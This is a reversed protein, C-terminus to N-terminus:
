CIRLYQKVLDWHPGTEFKMLFKAGDYNTVSVYLSEEMDAVILGEVWITQNNLSGWGLVSLPENDDIKVLLAIRDMEVNAAVFEGTFFAEIEFGWSPMPCSFKAVSRRDPSFWAVALGAPDDFDDRIEFIEFSGIVDGPWSFPPAAAPRKPTTTVPGTTTTTAPRTTTTTTTSVPVPATTATTAVPPTTTVAASTTTAATTSSTVAASTTTAAVTTVTPRPATTPSSGCAIGVAVGLAVLAARHRM